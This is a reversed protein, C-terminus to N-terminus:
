SKSKKTLPEDEKSSPRHHKRDLHVDEDESSGVNSHQIYDRTAPSTRRPKADRTTMSAEMSKFDEEPGKLMYAIQRSHTHDSPLSGDRARSIRALCDLLLKVAGIRNNGSAYFLPTLGDVDQANVNAHRVILSHMIGTNGLASVVMLPTINRRIVCDVNVGHNLLGAVKEQNQERVADHLMSIMIQERTPIRAAVELQLHKCEQTYRCEVEDEIAIFQDGQHRRRFEDRVVQATGSGLEKIIHSIERITERFPEELIIEAAKTMFTGMGYACITESM